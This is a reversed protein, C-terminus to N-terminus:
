ARIAAGTLADRIPTPRALDGTEGELHGDVQELLAPDIDALTRPPPAGSVNASTSVLPGGFKRCLAAAVPHATVRVALTAHDGRLWAPVHERCPMLWTHPGPWTALVAHLRAQPLADLDLLPVLAALEDAILILGKDEGRRKIALLRRVVAADFPDCGLGWVSETPYVIVGGAHLGAAAATPSLASVIM